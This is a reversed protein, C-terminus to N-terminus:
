FGFVCGCDIDIKRRDNYYFIGCRNEDQTLHVTPTHGHIMIMDSTNKSLYFEDRNWVIDQNKIQHELSKKVGVDKYIEVAAHTLLFKQGGVEIIFYYPLGKVFNLLKDADDSELKLVEQNTKDGGNRKWQHWAQMTDWDNSAFYFEEMMQEHNGKLLLMNNMGRGDSNDYIM